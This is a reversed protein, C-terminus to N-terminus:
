ETCIISDVAVSDLTDVTVIDTDSSAISGNTQGGCASFSVAVIAIAAFLIKKM